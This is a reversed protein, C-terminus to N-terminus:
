LNIVFEKEDELIIKIKDPIDIFTNNEESDDKAKPPTISFEVEKQPLIYLAYDRKFIEKDRKYLIVKIIRAFATGSNKVALVVEKKSVSIPSFDMKYYLEIGPPNVFVPVSINLVIQVATKIKKPNKELKVEEPLQKLILRYSKQLKTDYGGLYALKVLQRQRPELKIYPPVVVMEETDELIFEGKKNEDWKKIETEITITKDTLSQVEFIATNKSPNMYIRIPKIGFDLAYSPIVFLFPLLFLIVSRKNM